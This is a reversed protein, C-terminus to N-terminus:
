LEILRRDLLKNDFYLFHFGSYTSILKPSLRTKVNNGLFIFVDTSQQDVGGSDSLILLYM